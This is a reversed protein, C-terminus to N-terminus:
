DGFIIAVDYTSRDFPSDVFYIVIGQDTHEMVATDRADKKIMRATSFDVPVNLFKTAGENKLTPSVHPIWAVKNLRVNEPPQWHHHVWRAGQTDIYLADSGDIDAVIRLTTRNAATPKRVDRKVTPPRFVVQFEYLSGGGLPSDNLHIVVSDKKREVAVTDRVQVRKVRASQFDIPRALFRTTGENKMTAQEKPNWSIGNLTVPEPPMDWFRHYWTAGTQTIKIQDSGAIHGRFSLVIEASDAPPAQIASENGTPQAAATTSVALGFVISGFTSKMLHNEV